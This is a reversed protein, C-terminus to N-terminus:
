KITGIYAVSQNAISVVGNNEYKDFLGNLAEIYKGYKDDGEKLSYSCSLSRAIFRERDFPLSNDFSIYDYKDNFTLFIKCM